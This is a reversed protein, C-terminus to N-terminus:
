SNESGSGKQEALPVIYPIKKKLSSIQMFSGSKTRTTIKEARVFAKLTKYSHVQLYVVVVCFVPNASERCLDFTAFAKKLGRETVITPRRGAYNLN